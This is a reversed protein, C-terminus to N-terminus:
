KCYVVIKCHKNNNHCTPTHIKENAQKKTWTHKTDAEGVIHILLEM